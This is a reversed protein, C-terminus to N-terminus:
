EQRLACAEENPNFYRGGAERITAGLVSSKGAGNVGAIVTIRGRGARRSRSTMEGRAPSVGKHPAQGRASRRHGRRTGDGGSCCPGSPGAERVAATQMSEYLEDFRSALSDFHTAEHGVLERYRAVSVLVARVVNHRTIAIDQDAAAQDLVRGFANQAETSPIVVPAVEHVRGRTRADKAAHDIRTLTHKRDKSM